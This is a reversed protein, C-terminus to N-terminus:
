SAQRMMMGGLSISYEKAQDDYRVNYTTPFYGSRQYAQPQKIDEHVTQKTLMWERTMMPEIFTYTGDWSGNILIQKFDYKGPELGDTKDVWHLGMAPVTNEAPPGPPVVYDRPIYKPAPLDAAQAAFNPNSPNIEEVAAPDVMYFHMDFHPKGFLEAPAHGHSNWNLMVHDFDTASAQAPLALILMRPPVADEAPLGDLSAASMRIGIENPKGANDLTVYTKATGNGINQPPGFFTGSKNTQGSGCGALLTLTVGIALIPGVYRRM